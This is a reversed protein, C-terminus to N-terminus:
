VLIFSMGFCFILVRHLWPIEIKWFLWLVAWGLQMFVCNMIWGNPSFQAGLESLSNALISYGAFSYGPLLFMVLLLQIMGVLYFYQSWGLSPIQSNRQNTDFNPSKHQEM